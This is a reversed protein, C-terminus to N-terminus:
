RGGKAARSQIMDRLQAKFENLSLGDLSKRSTAASKNAGQGPLDVLEAALNPSRVIKNGNALGVVFKGQGWGSTRQYGIETATAFIVVEEGVLYSPASSITMHVGNVEGGPESITITAALRGKMTDAVGIEYHTWIFQHANDWASWTRLVKGQVVSAAEDVMQELTLRPVLTSWAPPTALLFFLALGAVLRRSPGLSCRTASRLRPSLTM